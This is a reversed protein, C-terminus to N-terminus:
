SYINKRHGVHLVLVILEKDQIQCIIRYKAVRYRWLGHLNKKLPKGFLKPDQHKSIREKLFVIIKKQAEPNLKLFEKEADKHFKVKWIL